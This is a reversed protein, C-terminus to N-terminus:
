DSLRTIDITDTTDYPKFYNRMNGENSKLFYREIM